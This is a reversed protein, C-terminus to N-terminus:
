AEAGLLQGLAEGGIQVLRVETHDPLPQRDSSAGASLNPYVELDPYLELDLPPRSAGQKDPVRAFSTTSRPRM